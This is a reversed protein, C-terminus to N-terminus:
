DSAKEPPKRQLVVRAPSGMAIAYPPIEGNVLSGPGVVAGEGVRSGALVMCNSYIIANKGIHISKGVPTQKGELTTSSHDYKAATLFCNPGIGARDEIIIEAGDDAAWIMAFESIEVNDGIKIHEANTLSVTPAMRLNVGARLKTIQSAHSYNYYHLMKLLHVYTRPDLLSMIGGLARIKRPMKRLTEPRPMLGTKQCSPSDDHTLGM